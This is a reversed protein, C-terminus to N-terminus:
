AVASGNHQLNMESLPDMKMYKRTSWQTGAVHKFRVEGAKTHLKRDYSGARTDSSVETRENRAAFNILKPM